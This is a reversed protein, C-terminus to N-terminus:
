QQMETAKLVFSGALILVEEIKNCNLLVFDDLLTPSNM